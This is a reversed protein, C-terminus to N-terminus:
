NAVRIMEISVHIMEIHLIKYSVHIMEITKQIRNNEISKLIKNLPKCDM